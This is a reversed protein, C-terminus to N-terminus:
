IEIFSHIFALHRKVINLVNWNYFQILFPTDVYADIGISLPIAFLSPPMFSLIKHSKM